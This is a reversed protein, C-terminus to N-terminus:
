IKKDQLKNNALYICYGLYFSFMPSALQIASFMITIIFIANALRNYHNKATYVIYFINAILIFSILGLEYIAAGFGSMIRSHGFDNIAESFGKPLLYSSLSEQIPKIINDTRSKVSEDTQYLSVPDSYLNHIVKYIRTGELESFIFFIFVVILTAGGLAKLLTNIKINKFSVLTIIILYIAIYIVGVSSQAFLILQILLNFIYLLKNKEFDLVFLLAFIIMFGYFSPESTLNPVGRGISTRAGSVLFYLFDSKVFMQIFSVLFWINIFIKIVREDLGKNKKLLIFTATPIVVISMYNYLSRLEDFGINGIILFVLIAILSVLAMPIVKRHLMLRNNIIIMVSLLFAYPQTDTGINILSLFPFFSLFALLYTLMKM